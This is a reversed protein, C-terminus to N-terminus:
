SVSKIFVQLETVMKKNIPGAASITLLAPNCYTKIAQNVEETTLTNLKNKHETIEKLTFGQQHYAHLDKLQSLTSDQLLVQGTTLIQKFKLLEAETIGDTYFRTIERYTSTLGQIAQAPSFFTM